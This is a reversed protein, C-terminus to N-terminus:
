AIANIVNQSNASSNEIALSKSKLFLYSSYLSNSVRETLFKKYRAYRRIKFSLASFRGVQGFLFIILSAVLIHNEGSVGVRDFFSGAIPADTKAISEMLPISCILAFLEAISNLIGLSISKRVSGLDMELLIQDDKLIKIPSILQLRM